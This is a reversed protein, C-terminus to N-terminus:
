DTCSLCMPGLDGNGVATFNGDCIEEWLQRITPRDKRFTGPRDSPREEWAIWRAVRTPIPGGRRPKIQEEIAFLLMREKIKWTALMLCLDCNGHTSDIKLDFAGTMFFVQVDDQVIGAHYMPFLGKGGEDFGKKADLAVKREYRDKEDARYGIVSHYQTSWGLHRRVYRHMTKIKLNATCTRQVPNPLPRVGATGDRRKPVIEELLRQMPEGQRSATEYSVRRVKTKEAPDYELWHLDLGFYRDLKDAFLLSEEMELGTNEFNFIFDARDAPSPNAAAIHAAQFGSSRGCSVGVAIKGPPFNERRYLHLDRFHFGLDSV